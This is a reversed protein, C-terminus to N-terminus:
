ANRRDVVPVTVVARPADDLWSPANRLSDPRLTKGVITVDVQTPVPADAAQEWGFIMREPIGPHLAPYATYDRLLRVETPKDSVLGQAGSIQLIADMDNRTEDATIEVTALVIVWRNGKTGAKLPPQDKLLRGGTVTVNWPGGKSVEDVKLRVVSALKPDVTRLGGFPITAVVAVAALAAVARRLTWWRAPDGGPEGDQDGQEWGGASSV